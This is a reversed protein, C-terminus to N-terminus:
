LHLFIQSQPNKIIQWEGRRKIEFRKLEIINGKHDFATYRKKIKRNEDTSAPLFMAHYPGDLELLISNENRVLFEGTFQDEDHYQSNSFSHSVNEKLM